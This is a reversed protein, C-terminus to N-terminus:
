PKDGYPWVDDALHERSQAKLPQHQRALERARVRTEEQLWRRELVLYLSALAERYGHGDPVLRLMEPTGRKCSQPTAAPDYPYRRLLEAPTM